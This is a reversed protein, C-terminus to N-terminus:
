FNKFSDYFQSFMESYRFLRSSEKSNLTRWVRVSVFQCGGSLLEILRGKFGYNTLKRHIDEYEICYQISKDILKISPSILIFDFGYHRHVEFLHCWDQRNKNNWARAGFMRDSQAEDIVVLTQSEKRPQHFKEAFSYLFEPTLFDNRIYYFRGCPNKMAPKYAPDKDMKKYEKWGYRVIDTKVSFNAIVNCMGVQLNRYITDAADLSKGSGGTGDFCTIM